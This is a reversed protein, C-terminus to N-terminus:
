KIFREIFQLKGMAEIQGDHYVKVRNPLWDPEVVPEPYCRCNWINGAHYNGVPKEGVLKEPSPPDNWNVLVGEM